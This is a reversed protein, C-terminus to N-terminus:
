GDVEVLMADGTRRGLCIRGASLVAASGKCGASSPATLRITMRQALSRVRAITMSGECEDALQDEASRTDAPVDGKRASGQNRQGLQARSAIRSPTRRLRSILV